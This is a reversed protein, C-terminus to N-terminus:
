SRGALANQFIKSLWEAVFRNLEENADRDLGLYYSSSEFRDGNEEIHIEMVTWGGFKIRVTGAGGSWSDESPDPDYSATLTAPLNITTM